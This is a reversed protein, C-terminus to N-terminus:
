QTIHIGSELLDILGNNRAYLRQCLDTVYPEGQEPGVRITHLRTRTLILRHLYNVDRWPQCRWGPLTTVLAGPLVIEGVHFGNYKRLCSEILLATAADSVMLQLGATSTAGQLKTKFQKSTGALQTCLRICGNTCQLLLEEPLEDMWNMHTGLLLLPPPPSVKFADFVSLFMPFSDFLM